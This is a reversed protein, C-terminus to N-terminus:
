RSGPPRRSATPRHCRRRRAGRWRRSARTACRPDRRSSAGFTTRSPRTAARATRRPSAAGCLRVLPGFDKGGTAGVALAAADFASRADGIFTAAEAADRMATAVDPRVECSAPTSYPLSDRPVTLDAAQNQSSRASEVAASARYARAAVGARAGVGLHTARAGVNSALGPLALSASMARLARASVRSADFRGAATAVARRAGDVPVPLSRSARSDCVSGWAVCLADMFAIPRSTCAPPAPPPDGTPHLLVAADETFTLLTGGDANAAAGVGGGCLPLVVDNTDHWSLMGIAGNSETYVLAPGFWACSGVSVDPPTESLKTMVCPEGKEGGGRYEALLLRGRSTLVAVAGAPTGDPDVDSLEPVRQFLARVVRENPELTLYGEM